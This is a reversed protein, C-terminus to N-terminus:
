FDLRKLAEEETEDAPAIYTDSIKSQRWEKFGPIANDLIANWDLHPANRVLTEDDHLEGQQAQTMYFTLSQAARERDRPAFEGFHQYKSDAAYPLGEGDWDALGNIIISDSNRHEYVSFSRTSGDPTMVTYVNGWERSNYFSSVSVNDIGVRDMEAKLEKVPFVLALYLQSSSIYGEEDEAVSVFIRESEPLMGRDSENTSLWEPRVDGRVARAISEQLYPEVDGLQTSGDKNYEPHNYRAFAVNQADELGIMRPNYVADAPEHTLEEGRRRIILDDALDHLMKDRARWNDAHPHDSRYGRQQPLVAPELSAILDRAENEVDGEFPSGALVDCLENIVLLNRKEADTWPHEWERIYHLDREISDWSISSPTVLREVLQAVLEQMESDDMVVPLLATPLSRTGAANKKWVTKAHGNKDVISIPSLHSRNNM